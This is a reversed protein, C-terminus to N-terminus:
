KVKGVFADKRDMKKIAKEAEEKTNFKKEVVPAPHGNPKFALIQFM